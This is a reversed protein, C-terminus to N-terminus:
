IKKLVSDSKYASDMKNYLILVSDANRTKQYSKYFDSLLFFNYKKTNSIPSLDNRLNEAKSIPHMVYLINTFFILYTSQYFIIVLLITIMIIEKLKNM